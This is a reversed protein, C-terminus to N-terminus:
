KVPGIINFNSVLPLNGAENLWASRHFIFFHDASAVFVFYGHQKCSFPM